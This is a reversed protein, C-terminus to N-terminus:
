NNFTKGDIDNLRGKGSTSAVVQSYFRGNVVISWGKATQFSHVKQTKLLALLQWTVFKNVSSNYCIRASQVHDHDSAM